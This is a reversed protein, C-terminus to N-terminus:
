DDRGPARTPRPPEPVREVSPRVQQGRTQLEKAVSSQHLGRRALLRTTIAETESVRGRVLAKARRVAAKTTMAIAVSYPDAPTGRHICRTLSPQTLRASVRPRSAGM